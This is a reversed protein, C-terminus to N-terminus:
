KRPTIRATWGGNQVMTIAIQQGHQVLRDKRKYDMAQRGANLGDEFSVMDYEKNKDLFDLNIKFERKQQSGNTIGGIFWQDGKRKAILAYEGANAELAITEDWTTPVQTIFETCEKNQYNHSDTVLVRQCFLNTTSYKECGKDKISKADRRRQSGLKACLRLSAFHM